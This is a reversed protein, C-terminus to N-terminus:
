KGEKRNLAQQVGWRTKYFKSARQKRAEALTLGAPAIWFRDRVGGEYYAAFTM